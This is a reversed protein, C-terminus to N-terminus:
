NGNILAEESEKALQETMNVSMKNLIDQDEQSLSGNSYRECSEIYNRLFLETSDEESLNQEGPFDLTLKRAENWLERFIKIRETSEM